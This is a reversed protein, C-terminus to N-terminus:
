GAGAPRCFSTILHSAAKKAATPIGTQGAISQARFSGFMGAFLSFKQALENAKQKNEEQLGEVGKLATRIVDELKEAEVTLENILVQAKVLHDGMPIGGWGSAQGKLQLYLRNTDQSVQGIKTRLRQVEDVNFILKASSLGNGQKRIMTQDQIECASIKKPCCSNAILRETEFSIIYPSELRYRNFNSIIYRNKRGNFYYKDVNNPRIKFSSIAEL